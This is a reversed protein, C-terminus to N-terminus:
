ILLNTIDVLSSVNISYNLRKLSILLRKNRLLENTDGTLVFFFEQINIDISYNM